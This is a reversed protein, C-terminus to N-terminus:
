QWTKWGRGALQPQFDDRQALKAIEAVCRLTLQALVGEERERGYFESLDLPSGVKMRVRARMLAPRWAVDHYPAGEIYCPVIPVQAKLAV